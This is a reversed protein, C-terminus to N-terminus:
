LICTHRLSYEYGQNVIIGRCLVGQKHLNVRGIRCLITHKYYYGHYYYNNFTYHVQIIILLHM